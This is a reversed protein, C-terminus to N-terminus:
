ALKVLIYHFNSLPQKTGDYIKKERKRKNESFGGNIEKATSFTFIQFNNNPDHFSNHKPQNILASPQYELRNIRNFEWM